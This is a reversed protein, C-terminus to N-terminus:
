THKYPIAQFDPSSLLMLADAAELIKTPTLMADNLMKTSIANTNCFNNPDRPTRKKSSSGWRRKILDDYNQEQERSGTPTTDVYSTLIAGCSSVLIEPESTDSDNEVIGNEFNGHGNAFRDGNTTNVSSVHGANALESSLARKATRKGRVLQRSSRRGVKARKNMRFPVDSESSRRAKRTVDADDKDSGPSESLDDPQPVAFYSHEIM